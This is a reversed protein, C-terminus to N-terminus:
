LGRREQTRLRAGHALLVSAAQCLRDIVFSRGLIDVLEAFAGIGKGRWM